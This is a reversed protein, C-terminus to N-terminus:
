QPPGFWRGISAGDMHNESDGLLSQIYTLQGHHHLLDVLGLLALGVLYPRPPPDDAPTARWWAGLADRGSDTLAYRKQEGTDDVAVLGDRHLRDLTSYVQGVNLRWVGGTAAEFATKLQYGHRPEDVLLAMLGERVAM